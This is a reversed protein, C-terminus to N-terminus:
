DNGAKWLGIVIFTGLAIFALAGAFIILVDM